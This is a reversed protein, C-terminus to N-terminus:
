MLFVSFNFAFTVLIISVRMLRHCTAHDLLQIYSQEFTKKVKIRYRNIIVTVSTLLKVGVKWLSSIHVVQCVTANTGRKNSNLMWWVYIHLAFIGFMMAILTEYNGCFLCSLCLGVSVTEDSCISSMRTGFMIATFMAFLLAEFLLMMLFITTAPASYNSCDSVFMLLNEYIEQEFHDQM